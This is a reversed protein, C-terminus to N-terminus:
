GSIVQDLVLRLDNVVMQLINISLFLLIKNSQLM